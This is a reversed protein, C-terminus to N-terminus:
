ARTLQDQREALRGMQRDDRRVSRAYSSLDFDLDGALAEIETMRTSFTALSNDIHALKALGRAAKSATERIGGDGGLGAAADTLVRALQEAARLKQLQSGIEALEGAKPALESLEKHVFRLWDLREAAQTQRRRLEELEVTTKRWQAHAQDCAQRLGLSGGYRDLLELHAAPELLRHQAHQASLDVLPAAVQRLVQVTALRGNIYCRNKGAGKGIVRRLVLAEGVAIGVEDLVALVKPGFPPEFLAEIEATDCGHRVFRESARGGLVAALADLLISKGAGTEGTVATLGAGLPLEAAQLIAFDAIRLTTLM